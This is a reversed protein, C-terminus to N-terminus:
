QVYILLSKKLNIANETSQIVYQEHERQYM